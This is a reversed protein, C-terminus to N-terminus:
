SATEKTTAEVGALAMAMKRPLDGERSEALQLARRSYGIAEAAKTQTMRNRARWARLDASTSMILSHGLRVRFTLYHFFASSVRKGRPVTKEDVVVWCLPKIKELRGSGRGPGNM